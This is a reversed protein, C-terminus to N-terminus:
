LFFFAWLAWAQWEECPVPPELEPPDSLLEASEFVCSNSKSSRRSVVEVYDLATPETVWSEASVPEVGVEEDEVKPGGEVGELVYRPIKIRTSREIQSRMRSM